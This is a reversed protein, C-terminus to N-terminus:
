RIVVITQSHSSDAGNQEQTGNWKGGGVEKTDKELLYGKDKKQLTLRETKM